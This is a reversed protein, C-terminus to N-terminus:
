QDESRPTLETSDAVFNKTLTLSPNNQQKGKLESLINHWGDLQWKWGLFWVAASMRDMSGKKDSQRTVLRGETTKEREQTHSGGKLRNDLGESQSEQEQAM